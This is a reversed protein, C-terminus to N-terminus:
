PSVMKRPKAMARAKAHRMMAATADASGTFGRTLMTLQVANKSFEETLGNFAPGLAKAIEGAQKMAEAVGKRGRGFVKALSLGTGALNASSKQVSKQVSALAKGENSALDGYVKRIAELELRIPSPGGGGGSQSMGILGGMIKFPLMLISKGVKGITGIIGMLGKGLSKLMNLSGAIGSVLGGFAGVMAAKGVNMLANKKKLAESEANTGALAVDSAAKSKNGFEEASKAAATMCSNIKGMNAEIEDLGECNGLAKCLQVATAVQGSLMKQNSALLATRAQLVKNIEQQIKLNGADGEAM